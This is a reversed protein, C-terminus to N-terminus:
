RTNPSRKDNKTNTAYDLLFISVTGFLLVCIFTPCIADYIFSTWFPALVSKVNVLIKIDLHVQRESLKGLCTEFLKM